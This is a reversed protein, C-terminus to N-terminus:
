VALNDILRTQGIRAAVLLRIPAATGGGAPALTEAHRAELYDLALGAAALATRGRALAAEIPTGARIESAARQLVAPITAATARDAASLYRNRSSMALGDAERVTPVGIVRVALDLDEAMRRVVLLQQFDKEGFIAVDPRCQTFLKAVVTAVGQFHAPRFLDELGAAAPGAPVVATAFGAPYMEPVTPAFVLAARARALARRDAEFTRPYKSFDETPAFQTPNVFISVVVKVRGRRAVRVLELHGEHLAGMTPVLAIRHGEGRWAAVRRRLGAVTRVVPPLAPAAM